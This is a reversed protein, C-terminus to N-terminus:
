CIFNGKLCPHDQGPKTSQCAQQSFCLAGVDEECQNQFHVSGGGALVQGLASLFSSSEEAQTINQQKPPGM